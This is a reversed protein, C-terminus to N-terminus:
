VEYKQILYVRANEDIYWKWAFNGWFMGEQFQAEAVDRLELFEMGLSKALPSLFEEVKCKQFPMRGQSLAFDYACTRMRCISCHRM